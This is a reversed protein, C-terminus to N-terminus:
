LPCGNPLGTDWEAGEWCRGAPDVAWVVADSKYVDIRVYTTTIGFLGACQKIDM